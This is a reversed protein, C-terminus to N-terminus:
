GGGGESGTSAKRPRRRGNGPRAYSENAEVIRVLFDVFLKREAASLPAMIREQAALAPPRLRRRLKTGRSTAGLLRARRDTPHVRRKVLGIGELRDITKGASVADIGLRAALQRQDLDPLDVIGVLVAYEGPTIGAPEIVEALAGLCIQHFRRALHAPVRHVPHVPNAGAAAAAGRTPARDSSATDRDKMMLITITHIRIILIRMM